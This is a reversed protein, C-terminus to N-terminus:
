RYGPSPAHLIGCGVAWLGSGPAWLGGVEGMETTLCPVGGVTVRADGPCTSLGPGFDEGVIVIFTHTSNTRADLSLGAITPPQTPVEVPQALFPSSPFCLAVQELPRARCHHSPRSRVM